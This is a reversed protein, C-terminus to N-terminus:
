DRLCRVSLGIVPQAPSKNFIDDYYNLRRYWVNGDGVLSASWFGAHQGVDAFVGLTTRIGGPLGSFGSSNNTGASQSIWYTTGITKMKGGVAVSPEGLFNALTTWEADTPVHWGTPCIGRADAVAYWNYFNGYIATNASNNDYGSQAGTTRAAWDSADWVYAIGDGNRYLTTKLNSGMWCQTGISVTNYPNGSIDSITATPCANPTVATSAASAISNGVSNTAVVTFTYSIGNTLGTVNISTTAGTATLNGPNSTVTYGTIASGGNSAPAVFAVSASINGATAVVSTPADPVTVPTVATSAVSNGVATTAIVTFTYASGNTLGTVNIPSTAGSATFNGPNSTVTYGTIASGGNSIPAVFAVSASSNGATAVVGTPAGPVTVPTVVMSAESAVSNGVSNTATVSFTYSIGNTLGTINIPSTAGTAMIGGPNSTVTYVTITSGGNYAPASFSVTAQASSGSNANVSTPPGPATPISTWTPLGSSMILFQGDQGKPLKDLKNNNYFLIDGNVLGDPKRLYPELMSSTDAINVKLNTRNSVSATDLKRLYPQLMSATDIINVKANIGTRYNALMATTDADRLYPLLMCTTDADRLYPQLMSATDLINVKTNIGTQYSALMATSDTARLYPTLMNLTDADRLYPQLMSATDIINVKANIGTHYNTLMATTDADRLYPLLM